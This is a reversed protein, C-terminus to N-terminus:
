SPVLRFFSLFERRKRFEGGVPIPQETPSLAQVDSARALARLDAVMERMSQYRDDPDKKLAKKVLARLGAPIKEGLPPPVEHIV